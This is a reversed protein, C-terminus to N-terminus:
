KTVSIVNQPNYQKCHQFAHGDYSIYGYMFISIIDNPLCKATNPKDHFLIDGHPIHGYRGKNSM